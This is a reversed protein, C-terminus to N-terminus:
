RRKKSKKRSRKVPSYSKYEYFRKASHEKQVRNLKNVFIGQWNPVKTKMNGIYTASTIEGAIKRQKLSQVKGEFSQFSGSVSLTNKKKYFERNKKLIYTQMEDKTNFVKNYNTIHQKHEKGKKDTYSVDRIFKQSKEKKLYQTKQKRVTKKSSSLYTLRLIYRSM